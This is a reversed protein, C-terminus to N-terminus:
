RNDRDSNFQELVQQKIAEYEEVTLKSMASGLHEKEVSIRYEEESEFIEIKVLEQTVEPDYTRLDKTGAAENAIKEALAKRKFYAIFVGARMEGSLGRDKLRAAYAKENMKIM